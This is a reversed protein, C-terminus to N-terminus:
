EPAYVRVYDIIFSQPLVSDDVGPGGFSGGIALNLLLYFPQDFPWVEVSREKPEFTYVLQNDIFFTINKPTWETAYRHFGEEIDAFPTTKSSGNDGHRAKTHLTTFIEGPKKGVYELIDIEGCTPWRVTDINQGLMWFAPWLGEGVPIKARTEIRGYRFHHKNKTTIRTSTYVEGEKKATITLMGNALHHNEKTYLQRENNGWGCLNPCGDGLEYNWTSTDLETGDFEESWVMTRERTGGISPGEAAEASSCQQLFALLPLLVFFFRKM